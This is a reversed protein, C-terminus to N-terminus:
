SGRPVQLGCLVGEEPGDGRPPMEDLRPFSSIRYLLVTLPYGRELMGVPVRHVRALKRLTIGDM